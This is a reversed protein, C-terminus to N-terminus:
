AYLSWITALHAVLGLGEGPARPLLGVPLLVALAAASAGPAPVVAAASTPAPAASPTAAPAPAAAPTPAPAPAPAPTGDLLTALPQLGLAHEILSGLRRRAGRM